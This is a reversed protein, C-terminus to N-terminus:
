NCKCKCKTNHQATTKTRCLWQVSLMKELPNTKYNVIQAIISKIKTKNIIWAHIHNYVTAASTIDICRCYVLVYYKCNFENLDTFLSYTMRFILLSKVISLRYINFYVTKYKKKWINFKFPRLDVYWICNLLSTFLEGFLMIKFILKIMATM